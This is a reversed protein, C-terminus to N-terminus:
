DIKINLVKSAKDCLYIGDLQNGFMPSEDSFPIGLEYREHYKAAIWRWSGNYKMRFCAVILAQYKTM